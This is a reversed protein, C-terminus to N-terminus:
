FMELQACGATETIFAYFVRGHSFIIGIPSYKDVHILTTKGAYLAVGGKQKLLPAPKFRM